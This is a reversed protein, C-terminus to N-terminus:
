LNGFNGTNGQNILEPTFHIYQASKGCITQGFTYPTNGVLPNPEDIIIDSSAGGFGSVSQYFNKKKWASPIRITINRLYVNYRSADYLKSSAETLWEEIKDTSIASEPVNDAIYIVVDEYGNNRLTIAEIHFVFVSLTVLLIIGAM